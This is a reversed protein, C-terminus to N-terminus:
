LKREDFDLTDSNLLDIQKILAERIKIHLNQRGLANVFFSYNDGGNALYDNTAVKYTTKKPLNLLEKSFPEGGKAIVFQKLTDLTNLSITLVVIENEFPMLEFIDGVTVNGSDLTSRIGGYNLISFDVDVMNERATVLVADAMFSGLVSSPKQKELFTPCYGIVKAMESQMGYRYPAILNETKKHTAVISTDISLVLNPSPYITSYPKCSAM